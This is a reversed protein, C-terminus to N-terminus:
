LRQVAVWGTELRVSVTVRSANPTLGPVLPAAAAQLENLVARARRLDGNLIANDAIM